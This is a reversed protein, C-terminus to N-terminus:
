HCLTLNPLHVPDTSHRSTGGHDRGAQDKGAQSEKYLVKYLHTGIKM